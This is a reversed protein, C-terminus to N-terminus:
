NRSTTDLTLANPLDEVSIGPESFESLVNPPNTCRDDAGSGINECPRYSKHLLALDTGDM